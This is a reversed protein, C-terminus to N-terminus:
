SGNICSYLFGNGIFANFVKEYSSATKSTSSGLGVSNSGNFKEGMGGDSFVFGRHDDETSIIHGTIIRRRDETLKLFDHMPLHGTILWHIGNALAIKKVGINTFADAVHSVKAETTNDAYWGNVVTNAEYITKILSKNNPANRIDQAIANLGEWYPLTGNGGEGEYQRSRYNFYFEGTRPNIPLFAHM